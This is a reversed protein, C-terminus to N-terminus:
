LGSLFFDIREEMRPMFRERRVRGEVPDLGARLREYSMNEVRLLHDIRWNRRFQRFNDGRYPVPSKVWFIFLDVEARRSDRHAASYWNRGPTPFILLTSNGGPGIGALGDGVKESALVMELCNELFRNRIREVPAAQLAPGKVLLLPIAAPDRGPLPYAATVAPLTTRFTSRLELILLGTVTAMTLVLCFSLAIAAWAPLGAPKFRALKAGVPKEGPLLFYTDARYADYEAGFLERCRREENGALLFYLWLMIFYAIFTLLRGWTLIIGLGFLALALYQPHRFKRYIGTRVLGSRAIKGAYIQFAGILFIVFGAIILILGLPFLTHVPFVFHVLRATWPNASLTEIHMVSGYLFSAFPLLMWVPELIVFFALVRLIVSGARNTPPPHNVSNKRLDDNM